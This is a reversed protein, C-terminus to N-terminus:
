SQKEALEIAASIDEVIQNIVGAGQSVTDWGAHVMEAVKDPAM